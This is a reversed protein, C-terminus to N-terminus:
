DNLNIQAIPPLLIEDEIQEEFTEVKYSGWTTKFSTAASGHDQQLHSLPMGRWHHLWNKKATAGWELQYIQMARAFHKRSSRLHGIRVCAFGARENALGEFQLLRSEALMKIAKNYAAILDAQQTPSSKWSIRLAMEQAALFALCPPANPSGVAAMKGIGKKHSRAKRLYRRRKTERYLELYLHVVFTYWAYTGTAVSSSANAMSNIEKILSEAVGYLGFHCALQAKLKLSVPILINLNSVRCQQMFDEEKMLGRLSEIDEWSTMDSQLQLVHQLIPQMYILMGTQGLDSIRSCVNRMRHELQPLSAGVWSDMFFGQSLCIVGYVVDGKKLGSNGAQYLQDGFDALPERWHSLLPLVLYVTSCSMHCDFRDLLRLSLKGFRYARGHNGLLAEALGYVAFANASHLSLGGSLTLQCSLLASYLAQQKEGKINCFTSVHHLIRVAVMMSPDSMLPLALIDDDSRKRLMKKVKMFKLLVHPMGVKSPIHVGFTKLALNATAISQVVENAALRVEVHILLSNMRAEDSKARRLTEATLKKCADFNGVILEVKALSETMAFTLDYLNDSWKDPEGNLLMLGTRLFSAAETFALKATCHKSADYNVSALKMRQARNQVFESASNLHIAANYKTQLENDFRLYAEGIQLQLEETEEHELMAQFAAQLKDHLFQYGGKSKEVIGADVALTLLAAIDAKSVTRQSANQNRRVLVSCIVDELITEDFCYGLLSAIKLAEKLDSPLRQIRRRDLLLGDAIMIERQILDIDFVWCGTRDVSVLGEEQVVKLFQIIYFPNGETRRSILWSLEQMKESTMGAIATVMEHVTSSDLNALQIDVVGNCDDFVGEIISAEEERYAFVFLVNMLDSDRLFLDFLNRSDNDMWQIDDFFLVISHSPSAMAHLFTKCAVQFAPLTVNQRLHKEDDLDHEDDDQVVLFADLNTISRTLLRGDEGLAQRIEERKKEDYDDSQLVLDCLDSFAAMIASYPEQSSDQFFKGACFFGGSSCVPERLSDVLYTKGSGSVGHITVVKPQGEAQTVQSYASHLRESETRRGFMTGRAPSRKGLFLGDGGGGRVASYGDSLNGTLCSM